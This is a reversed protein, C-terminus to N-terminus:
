ATLTGNSVLSHSLNIQGPGGPVVPVRGANGPEGPMPLGPQLVEAGAPGLHDGSVLLRASHGGAKGAVIGGLYELAQLLLAADPGMKYAPPLSAPPGM